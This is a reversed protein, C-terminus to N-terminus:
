DDISLMSDDDLVEKYRDANWDYWFPMDARAKYRYNLKRIRKGMKQLLMDKDHQSVFGQKKAAFQNQPKAAQLEGFPDAYKNLIKDKDNVKAREGRKQKGFFVEAMEM